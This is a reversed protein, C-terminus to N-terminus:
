AAMIVPHAQYAVAAPSLTRAHSLAAASRDQGTAALLEDIGAVFGDAM